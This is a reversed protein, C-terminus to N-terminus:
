QFARTWTGLGLDLGLTLLFPFSSNQSLATKLIKHAVMNYLWGCSKLMFSTELVLVWPPLVCSLGVHELLVNRFFHKLPRQSISHNLQYGQTMRLGYFFDLTM